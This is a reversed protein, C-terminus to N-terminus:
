QKVPRKPAGMATEKWAMYQRLIANRSARGITILRSAENRKDAAHKREVGLSTMLMARAITAVEEQVAASMLFTVADAESGRSKAEKQLWSSYGIDLEEAPAELFDGCAQPWGNPNYEASIRWLKCPYKGFQGLRLLVHGYTTLLSM